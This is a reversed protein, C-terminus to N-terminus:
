GLPIVPLVLFSTCLSGRVLRTIKRDTSEDGLAGEHRASETSSFHAIIKNVAERLDKLLAETIPKSM